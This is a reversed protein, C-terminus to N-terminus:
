SPLSDGYDAVQYNLRLDLRRAFEDTLARAARWSWDACGAGLAKSPFWPDTTDVTLANPSFKREELAVGLNIGQVGFVVDHPKYHLLYNRLRVLLHGEQYPQQGHDFPPVDACRFAYDYKDMIKLSWGGGSMDWIMKFKEGHLDALEEVFAPHGDVVDQFVENIAAELFAVSESVATLM